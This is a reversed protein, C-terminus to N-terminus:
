AAIRRRDGGCDMRLETLIQAVAIPHTMYPEGSERRMNRHAYSGLLYARM